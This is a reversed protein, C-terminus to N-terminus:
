CPDERTGLKSSVKQCIQRKVKFNEKCHGRVKLTLCSPKDCKSAAGPAQECYFSLRLPPLDSYRTM